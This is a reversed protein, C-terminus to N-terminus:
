RGVLIEPEENSTTRVACTRLYRNMFRNGAKLFTSELSFGNNVYFRNVGENGDRDTILYVHDLEQAAVEQCFSQLLLTGIGFGTSDPTIAISSLLAAREISVPKDGTYFLAAALKRAVFFPQACLAPFALTGFAFWRRKLLDRFFTDPTVSGVVFGGIHGKNNEALLCICNRSQVFQGYLEMLFTKGLTTLFFGPFAAVHIRALEEVDTGTARRVAFSPRDLM